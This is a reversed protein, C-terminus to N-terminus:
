IMTKEGLINLFEQTYSTIYGGAATFTMEGFYTKGGVEYLDVRVEPFGESLRAAANLMEDLSSPRPIDCEAPLHFGDNAIFEPHPQWNVDYVALNMSDSTRNFYVCIYAPKGNFSWIKYDILSPSPISQKTRDLLEEAIILPDIKDYHPEAMRTGFKTKQWKRFKETWLATDIESKDHCILVDKSGHNTKLVFKNPLAAWDIDDAKEWTGYLKILMHGLGCAEVYKRVRYKDALETWRSTDSNFKLWNIKENIDAPHKWDLKKGCIRKYRLSALKKPAIRGLLHEYHLLLLNLENRLLIYLSTINKM